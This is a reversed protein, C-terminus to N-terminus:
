IIFFLFYPSRVYFKIVLQFNIEIIDSQFDKLNQM